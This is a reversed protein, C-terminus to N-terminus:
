LAGGNGVPDHTGLLGQDNVETCHASEQLGPHGQQGRRGRAPAAGPQAGQLLPAPGGRGRRRLHVGGHVAGVQRGRPARLGAALGRPGRISARWGSGLGSAQSIEERKSFVLAAVLHMALKVRM